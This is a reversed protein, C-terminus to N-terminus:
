LVAAPTVAAVVMGDGQAPRPRPLRVTFTTRRAAAIMEDIPFRFCRRTTAAGKGTYLLADDNLQGRAVTGAVAYAGVSTPLFRRRRLPIYKPQDHM